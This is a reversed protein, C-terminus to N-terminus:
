YISVQSIKKHEPWIEIYLNNKKQQLTDDTEALCVWEESPLYDSMYIQLIIFITIVM